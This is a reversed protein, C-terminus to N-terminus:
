IKDIEFSYMTREDSVGPLFKYACWCYARTVLNAKKKCIAVLDWNFVSVQFTVRKYGYTKFLSSCAKKVFHTAIKRKRYNKEVCLEKICVTAEEDRQKSYILYAVLKKNKYEDLTMEDDSELNLDSDDDTDLLEELDTDIDYSREKLYALIVGQNARRAEATKYTFYASQTQNLLEMENITFNHTKKKYASVKWLLFITVVLPPFCFSFASRVFTHCLALLLGTVVYTFWCRFVSKYINIYFDRRNESIIRQLDFNSENKLEHVFLKAPNIPKKSIRTAKKSRLNSKYKAFKKSTPPRTKSKTKAKANSSSADM